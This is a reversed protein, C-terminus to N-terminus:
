AIRWPQIRIGSSQDREHGWGLAVVRVVGSGGDIEGRAELELEVAEIALQGLDLHEDALRRRLGGAVLLLAGLRRVAQGAAPAHRRLVEIASLAWSTVSVRRAETISAWTSTRSPLRM